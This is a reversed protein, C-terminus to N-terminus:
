VLNYTIGSVTITGELTSAATDTADAFIARVYAVESGWSLAYETGSLAWSNTAPPTISSNFTTTVFTGDAKYPRLLVRAPANTNGNVVVDARFTNIASNYLIEATRFRNADESEVGTQWGIGGVEYTVFTGVVNVVVECSASYGNCSATITTTGIGCPTVVGNAVMAVSKDGSTWKVTDIGLPSPTLITATLTARSHEDFTLSTQDLTVGSCRVLEGTTTGDVTCDEIAKFQDAYTSFNTASKYSDVLASPVCIYGTGNAIASNTLANASSMTCVTAGRLILAILASCGNFANEAISTVNPVDVMTLATCASFAHVGVKKLLNDKFENITGDIISDIVADDGLVDVTNIFESM